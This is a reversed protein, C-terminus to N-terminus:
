SFAGWPAQYQGTEILDLIYDAINVSNFCTHCHEMGSDAIKKRENEHASYWDALEFCEQPEDFYRVCVKDEMLLNTDPVRKALVMTGCTSYRTFRDSHYLSVSNIVVRAKFDKGFHRHQAMIGIEKM